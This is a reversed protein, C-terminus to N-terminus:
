FVQLWSTVSFMGPSRRSVTTSSTYNIFCNPAKKFACNTKQQACNLQNFIKKISDSQDGKIRWCFQSRAERRFVDLHLSVPKVEESCSVPRPWSDRTATQPFAATSIPFNIVAEWNTQRLLLMNTKSTFNSRPRSALNTKHKVEVFKLCTLHQTLEVCQCHQSSLFVPSM